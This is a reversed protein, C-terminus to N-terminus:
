MRSLITLCRIWAEKRRCVLLRNPQKSSVRDSIGDGRCIYTDAHHVGVVVGGLASVLLARIILSTLGFVTRLGGWERGLALGSRVSATSVERGWVWGTVTSLGM